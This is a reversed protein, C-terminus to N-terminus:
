KDIYGGLNQRKRLPGHRDFSYYALLEECFKSNRNKESHVALGRQRKDEAFVIVNYKWCTPAGRGNVGV